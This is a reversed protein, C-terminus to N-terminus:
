PSRPPVPNVPSAPAADDQVPTLDYGKNHMCFVILRQESYGRDYYDFGSHRFFAPRAFYAPRFRLGGYDPQMRYAEAAAARRCEGLDQKATARDAGPKEWERPPGACATLPLLALLALRPRM